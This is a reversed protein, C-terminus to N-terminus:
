DYTPTRGEAIQTAIRSVNTVIAFETTHLPALEGHAGMPPLRPKASAADEVVVSPEETNEPEM